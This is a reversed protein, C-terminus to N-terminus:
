PVDLARPYLLKAFPFDLLFSSMQLLAPDNELGQRFSSCPASTIPSLRVRGCRKKSRGTATV